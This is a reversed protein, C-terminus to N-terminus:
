EKAVLDRRQYRGGRSRVAQKVEPEIKEEIVPAPEAELVEKNPVPEVAKANLYGRMTESEPNAEFEDGPFRWNGDVMVRRDTARVLM